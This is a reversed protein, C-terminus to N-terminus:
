VNPVVEETINRVAEATMKGILFPYAKFDFSSVFNGTAESLDAFACAEGDQFDHKTAYVSVSGGDVSVFPTRLAAAFYNALVCKDECGTKGKVGLRGLYGAIGDTTKPLERIVRKLATQVAKNHGM